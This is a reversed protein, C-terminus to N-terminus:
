RNAVLCSQRQCVFSTFWLMERALGWLNRQNFRLQRPKFRLVEEIMANLDRTYEIGNSNTTAFQEATCSRYRLRSRPLIKHFHRVRLSQNTDDFRQHVNAYNHKQTTISNQPETKRFLACARAISSLCMGVVGWDGGSWWIPQIVEWLGKHLSVRFRFRFGQFYGRCSRRCSVGGRKSIYTRTGLM